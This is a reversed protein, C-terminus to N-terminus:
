ELNSIRHLVIFSLFSFSVPLNVSHQGLYKNEHLLFHISSGPKACLDPISVETFGIDMLTPNQQKEQRNRQDIFWTNFTLSCIRFSHTWSADKVSYKEVDLNNKVIRYFVSHLLPTLIALQGIAKSAAHCCSV